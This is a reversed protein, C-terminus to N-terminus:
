DRFYKILQLVFPHLPPGVPVIGLLSNALLLQGDLENFSLSKREVEVGHGRAFMCAQERMIGDLGGELVTIRDSAFLMLSTRSGDVIFGDSNTLLGEFVQAKEAEKLALAYPLYNGTKFPALQPHVQMTSLIVDVGKFIAEDPAVLDEITLAYDNASLIIRIKQDGHASSLQRKLEDLIVEEKPIFFDFFQAHLCVRQWHESWFFLSEGRSKLTTFVYKGHMLTLFQSDVTAVNGNIILKAM